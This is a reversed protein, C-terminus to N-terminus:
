KEFGSTKPLHRQNDTHIPTTQAKSINTCQKTIMTAEEYHLNHAKKDNKTCELCEKGQENEVHPKIYPSAWEHILTCCRHSSHVETAKGLSEAVQM